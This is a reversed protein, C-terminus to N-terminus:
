DIKRWNIVKKEKSDRIKYNSSSARGFIVEYTAPIKGDVKKKNYSAIVKRITDPSTLNKNRKSSANTAGLGTLDKMLKLPEDYNVTLTERDIVVDRMGVNALYDGIQHMDLFQSTHSFRSYGEFSERLERLTDPGLTSFVFLGGSNNLLSNVNSFVQQPNPCWQISLNSYVVDISNIKFPLREADACIFFKKKKLISSNAKRAMILMTEAMDVCFLRSKAFKKQLSPIIRGTGCGLELITKVNNKDNVDLRQLLRNGVERQLFDFNEYRSAAKNFTARVRAKDLSPQDRKNM